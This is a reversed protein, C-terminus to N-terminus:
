KDNNTVGNLGFYNMLSYVDLNICLSSSHIEGICCIINHSLFYQLIQIICYQMSMCDNIYESQTKFDGFYIKLNNTFVITITISDWRNIVCECRTVKINLIKEVITSISERIFTNTLTLLKDYMSENMLPADYQQYKRYEHDSDFISM